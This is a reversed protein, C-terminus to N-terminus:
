WSTIWSTRNERALELRHQRWRVSASRTSSWARRYHWDPSIVIICCPPTWDRRNRPRSVLLQHDRSTWTDWSHWTVGLGVPPWYPSLKVQSSYSFADLLGVAWQNRLYPTLIIFPSVVGALAITKHWVTSELTFTFKYLAYDHFDRIREM